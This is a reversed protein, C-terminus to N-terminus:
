LSVASLLCFVSALKTPARLASSLLGHAQAGRTFVLSTIAMAFPASMLVGDLAWSSFARSSSAGAPAGATVNNM